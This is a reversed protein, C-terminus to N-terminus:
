LRHGSTFVQLLESVVREREAPQQSRIATTVCGNLHDILVRRQFADLRRQVTRIEAMILVPYTDTELMQQIHDIREITQALWTLRQSTRQETHEPAPLDPVQEPAGKFVTLLEHIVQERESQNSERLAETVAENLHQELILNNFKDLAQQVAQAQKIIDICYADSEVMRQVGRLHGASTKLRNTLRRTHTPQVTM